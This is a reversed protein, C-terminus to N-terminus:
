QAPLCMTVLSTITKHVGPLAQIQSTIMEGLQEINEAEVAAIIDYPGTVASSNKIGKIRAVKGILEKVKGPEVEILVYASVSM